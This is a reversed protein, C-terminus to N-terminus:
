APRWRGRGPFHVHAVFGWYGADLARREIETMRARRLRADDVRRQGPRRRWPVDASVNRRGYSLVSPTSSPVREPSVIDFFLDESARMAAVLRPPPRDTGGHPHQHGQERGPFRQTDPPDGVAHLDHARVGGALDLDPNIM